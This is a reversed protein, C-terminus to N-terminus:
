ELNRCGAERTYHRIIDRLAADSIECQDAKLGSADLQRKILYRRAIQLKEDETYGPVSIMEMRDRLPGPIGDQVNATGIFMVKSLDFPLGLYND